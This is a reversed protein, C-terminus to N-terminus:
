LILKYEIEKKKNLNANFCALEVFHPLGAAM